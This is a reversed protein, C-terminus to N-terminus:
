AEYNESQAKQINKKANKLFNILLDIEELDLDMRESCFEYNSGLKIDLHVVGSDQSLDIENENEKFKLVIM